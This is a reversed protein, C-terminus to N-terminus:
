WTETTRPFTREYTGVSREGVWGRGGNFRTNEGKKPASDHFVVASFIRDTATGTGIIRAGLRPCCAGTPLCRASRTVHHGGCPIGTELAGRELPPSRSVARVDCWDITATVTGNCRRTAYQRRRISSSVREM